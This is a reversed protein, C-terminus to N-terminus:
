CSDTLRLELAYLFCITAGLVQHESILEERSLYERILSLGKKNQHRQSDAGIVIFLSFLFEAKHSPPHRHL